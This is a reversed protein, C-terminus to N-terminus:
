PPIYPTFWFGIRLCFVSSWLQLVNNIFKVLKKLFVSKLVWMQKRIMTSKPIKSRYICMFIILFLWFEINKSFFTDGFSVYFILNGIVNIFYQHNVPLIFLLLRNSLMKASFYRWSSNTTFINENSWWCKSFCENKWFINKM